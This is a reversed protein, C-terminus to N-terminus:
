RFDHKVEPFPNVWRVRRGCIQCVVEAARRSPPHLAPTAEGPECAPPVTLNACSSTGLSSQDTVRAKLRQRYERQRQRHDLRGELGLSQHYRRNAERRQLRRSKQRCRLSCYRQGRDCHRCLYFVAGCPPFQCVCQRFVKGCAVPVPESLSCQVVPV